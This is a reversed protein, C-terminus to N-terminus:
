RQLSEIVQLRVDKDLDSRLTEAMVPVIAPDNIRALAVVIVARIDSKTEKKLAEALVPIAAANGPVALAEVAAQREKPSASDLAPSQLLTALLFTAVINM